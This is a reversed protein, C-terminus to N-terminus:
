SGYKIPDDELKLKDAMQQGAGRGAVIEFSLRDGAFIEDIGARRIASIHVFVDGAGDDRTIFGFGRDADFTKVFGRIM